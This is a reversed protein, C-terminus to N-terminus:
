PSVWLVIYDEWPLKEVVERAFNEAQKRGEDDVSFREDWCLLEDTYDYVLDQKDTEWIRCCDRYGGLNWECTKLIEARAIRAEWWSYEDSPITEENVMVLVPLNPLQKLAEVLDDREKIM